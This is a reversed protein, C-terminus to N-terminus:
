SGRSSLARRATRIESVVARLLAKGVLREPSRRGAFADAIAYFTLLSVRRRPTVLYVPEWADPLFKAKFRELGEFNYFRRAHARTWTLLARVPLPPAQDSLPATSSLPVLGLTIEADPSVARCVADVLLSPTGNPAGPPQIIWEVHWAGRAPVPGLVLYAVPQRERTAVFVRRDTLSDLVYPDALFALPPMGRTAGWTDLVRRLAPSAAAEAAAVEEVVVGKNRARNVQARLSAKRALRDEWAGARWVPQAGVVLATGDGGLRDPSEVGFWFAHTAAERAAAEFQRAAPAVAEPPGIPEGAAMWVSPGVPSARAEVYAVICGAGAWYHFQPTLTQYVSAVRGYARIARLAEARGVM